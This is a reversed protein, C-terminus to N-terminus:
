CSPAPPWRHGGEPGLPCAAPPWVEGTINRSGLAGKGELLARTQRHITRDGFCLPCRRSGGGAGRAPASLRLMPLNCEGGKRQARRGGVGWDKGEVRGPVGAGGRGAAPYAGAARPAARRAPGPTRTRRAPEGLRPPRPSRRPSWRQRGCLGPTRRRRLPPQPAPPRRHSRPRPSRGCPGAGPESRSGM